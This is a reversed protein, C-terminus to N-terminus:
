KSIDFVNIWSRRCKVVAVIMGFFTLILGVKYVITWHNKIHITYKGKPLELIITKAGQNTTVLKNNYQDYLDVTSYAIIPTIIKNNNEQLDLMFFPHEASYNMTTKIGNISGVKDVINQSESKSIEKPFYDKNVSNQYRKTSLIDQDTYMIKLEKREVYLGAISAYSVFLIGVLFFAGLFNRHKRKRSFWIVLLIAGVYLSFVSLFAMLRFPFQITLLPTKQFLFWPFLKTLSITLIYSLLSCFLLLKNKYVISYNKKKILSFITFLQICLVIVGMSMYGLYNIASRRLIYLPNYAEKYLDHVSVSRITLTVLEYVLPILAFSSLLVTIIAYKVFSFTIALTVKKKILCFLYLIGLLVICLFLSLVHSYAILSIGLVLWYGKRSNDFLISYFGAFVLPYMSLSFFEGLDFREYFCILRYHSFLYLVAFVFSTNSYFKIERNIMSKTTIYYCSQYAILFTIFNVFIVYLYTAGVVSKTFFDLLAIPIITTITPYFINAGYIIQKNGFFTTPSFLNGHRMENISSFIRAMHFPYDDGQILFFSGEHFNFFPLCFILSLVCGILLIKKKNM